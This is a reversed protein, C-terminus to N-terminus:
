LKMVRPIWTSVRRITKLLRHLHRRRQALQHSMKKFVNQHSLTLHLSRIRSRPGSCLSITRPRLTLHRQAVWPMSVACVVFVHSESELTWLLSIQHYEQARLNPTQSETGTVRLTSTSRCRLLHSSLPISGNSLPLPPDSNAWAFALSSAPFSTFFIM